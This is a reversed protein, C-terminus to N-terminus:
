TAKLPDKITLLLGVVAMVESPVEGEVVGVVVSAVEVELPVEGTQLVILAIPALVVLLDAEERATTDGM